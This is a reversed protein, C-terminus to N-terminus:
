TLGERVCIYVDWEYAINYLDRSKSVKDGENVDIYVGEEVTTASFKGVSAGPISSPPVSFQVPVTAQSYTM